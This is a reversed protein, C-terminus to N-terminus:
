KLVDIVLQKNFQHLAPAKVELLHTLLSFVGTNQFAEVTINKKFDPGNAIFIANLRDDFKADYGHTTKSIYHGEEYFTYPPIANVIMDPITASQSEFHWHTPYENKLYIKFKDKHDTQKLLQSRVDNLQKDDNQYIYLQTQGNIIKTQKKNSILKDWNIAHAKGAPTMGHDSVLIINVATDVENKIRTVLRGIQQDVDFIAETLEPSNGYRHGASDVTSFYSAIFDPRQKKPLKLWEIVKDIRTANPTNHKYPYYFTPLRGDVKTESEPWFYIATKLGQQEALAWIPRATLWSSNFKGAGLTYNKKITRHYFDNHVIGHQAPYVGTVISLHNPFTKSPFVPFMAKAIVGQDALALIHKPKYEKLYHQAFGDISILVVPAKAFIVQSTLLVIICYLWRM